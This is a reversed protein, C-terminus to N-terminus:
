DFSQMGSQAIRLMRDYATPTLERFFYHVPDVPRGEYLVEYHLHPALSLGTNGSLAIIDGRNVKQGRKVSAASLHGYRTQYGNGHDITVTLGSSSNRRAAEKVTGDATAFIRTGEPVTFDVGNHMALSKYFPHIRMGFSATLLTLDDNIVPQISPIADAADPAAATRSRITDFTAALRQMSRELRDAHDFFRAGLRANSMGLLEERRNWRSSAYANLDYPESEFLIGFVNRDRESVNDLVAEVEDLRASLAEYERRLNETSKRMRYEQPTDFFFSFVAYYLAGAGFLVFLNVCLRLLRRKVATRRNELPPFIRHQQKGM